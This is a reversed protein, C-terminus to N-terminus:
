ARCFKPPLFHFLFKNDYQSGCDHREGTREGERRAAFRGGCVVAVRGIGIFVCNLTQLKCQIIVAVPHDADAGTGICFNDNRRLIVTQGHCANKFLRESAGIIKCADFDRVANGVNTCFREIIAATKCTDCDGVANCANSIIREIIAAAKCTDCNGIANCINATPRKGTGGIAYVFIIPFIINEIDVVM